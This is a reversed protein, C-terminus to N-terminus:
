IIRFANALFYEGEWHMRVQSFLLDNKYAIMYLIIEFFTSEPTVGSDHTTLPSYHTTLLSYHTTLLSHDPIWKDPIWFRSESKSFQM